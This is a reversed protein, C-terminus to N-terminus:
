DAFPHLLSPLFILSPIVSPPLLFSQLLFSPIFPSLPLLFSFPPIVSLPLFFHLIFSPSLLLLSPLFFSQLLFSSTGFSSHPIVSLYFLFLQSYIIYSPHLLCSGLVVPSVSKLIVQRLGHLLYGLIFSLSRYIRLPLYLHPLSSVDLFLSPLRPNRMFTPHLLYHSICHSASSNNPSPHLGHTYPSPPSASSRRWIRSASNILILFLFIYMCLLLIILFFYIYMCLLLVSYSICFCPVQTLFSVILKSEFVYLFSLCQSLYSCIFYINFVFCLCYFAPLLSLYSSLLILFSRVSINLFLFLFHCLGSM